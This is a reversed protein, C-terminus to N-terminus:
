SSTLDVERGVHTPLLSVRNLMWAMAATGAVIGTFLRLENFSERLGFAQTLGDLALPAVLAIVMWSSLRVQQLKRVSAVLAIGILFGIYIGTCRACIPMPVGALHFCRAEIGHCLVRFLFRLQSPAGQAIALTVAVSALLITSFTAAFVAAAIRGANSM